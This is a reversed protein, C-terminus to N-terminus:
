SNLMSPQLSSVIDLPYRCGKLYDGVCQMVFPSRHRDRERLLEEPTLWRVALIYPDSPAPARGSPIYLKGTYSLRLYITNTGPVYWQYIGVLHAPVFTVGSEELTERVAGESPSEGAELLGAPQSIMQVGNVMEEIVLFHGDRELVSSVIIRHSVPSTDRLRGKM